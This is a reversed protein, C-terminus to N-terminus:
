IGSRVSVAAASQGGFYEFGGKEKKMMSRISGGIGKAVGSEWIYVHRDESGSILYRGDDSFSARIQSSTNEHGKYKTELTKDLLNYLRVRSDNSTILLRDEGPGPGALPAISTIKRGKSNKGRTSKANLLTHFKFTDTEFFMQLFPFFTHM